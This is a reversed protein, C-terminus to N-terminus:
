AGYLEAVELGHSFNGRLVVGGGDERDGDLQELGEEARGAGGRRAGLVRSLRCSRGQRCSVDRGEHGLESDLRCPCGRGLLMLSPGRLGTGARISRAASSRIMRRAASSWVASRSTPSVSVESSSIESPRSTPM